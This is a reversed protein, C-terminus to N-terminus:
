KKKSNMYVEKQNEALIYIEGLVPHTQGFMKFHEDRTYPLIKWSEGGYDNGLDYGPGKELYYFGMPDGSKASPFSYGLAISHGEVTAGTFDEHIYPYDNSHFASIQVIDKNAVLSGVASAKGGENNGIQNLLKYTKLVSAQNTGGSVSNIYFGIKAGVLEASGYSPTAPLKYDAIFLRADTVDDVTGSQIDATSLNNDYLDPYTANASSTFDPTPGKKFYRTAM